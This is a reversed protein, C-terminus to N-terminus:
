EPDPRVTPEYVHFAAGSGFIKTGTLTLDIRDTIKDFLQLRGSGLITPQIGLQFEDVLGRNALQVILSPSGVLIDKDGQQKLSNIEDDVIEHKIETNRWDVTRLTRSYVIKHISDIVAAFDDTASNGTPNEVVSKWYTMLEYTKRGYLAVGANRLLDAYHQHLDDDANMATHDCYGDLSINM